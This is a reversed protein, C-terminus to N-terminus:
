SCKEMARESINQLRMMGVGGDSSSQLVFDLSSMGTPDSMMRGLSKLEDESLDKSVQRAFCNCVSKEEHGLDTCAKAVTKAESSLGGCASLGAAMFAIVLSLGTKRSGM